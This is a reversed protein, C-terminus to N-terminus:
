AAGSQSSSEKEESTTDFPAMNAETPVFGVIIQKAIIRTCDGNPKKVTITSSGTKSDRYVSAIHTNLLVKDGLHAQINAYLQTNSHSEPVVLPTGDFWAYGFTSMAHLTPLALLDNSWHADLLMVVISELNLARVTEMFPRALPAAEGLPSPLNYSPYVYKRYKLGFETWRGIAAMQDEASYMTVNVPETKQDLYVTNFPVGSAAVVNIGYRNFFPEVFSYSHYSQVGFDIHSDVGPANITDM